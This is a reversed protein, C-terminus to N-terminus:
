SNKHKETKGPSLMVHNHCQLRKESTKRNFHPTKTSNKNQTKGPSLHIDSHCGPCWTKTKSDKRHRTKNMKPQNKHHRKGTKNDLYVPHVPNNSKLSILDLLVIAHNLHKVFETTDKINMLNWKGMLNSCKTAESFKTKKVKFGQHKHSKTRIKSWDKKKSNKTQSPNHPGDNIRNGKHNFKQNEVKENHSKNKSKKTTKDATSWWSNVKKLTYGYLGQHVNKVPYSNISANAMCGLQAITNLKGQPLSASNRMSDKKKNENNKNNVKNNNVKSLKNKNSKNRPKVTIWDDSSYRLWTSSGHQNMSQSLRSSTSTSNTNGM